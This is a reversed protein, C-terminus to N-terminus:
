RQTAAQRVPAVTLLFVSDEPAEVAHPLGSQLSLMQGEALTVVESEASFRIRGEIVQVTIPGDARHSALSTGARLALLMVRMGETRFLPLTAREGRRWAEENKIRQALAQLDFTSLPADLSLMNLPKRPPETM